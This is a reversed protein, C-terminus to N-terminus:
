DTHVSSRSMQNRVSKMASMLVDDAFFGISKSARQASRLLPSQAVTKVFKNEHWAEIQVLVGTDNEALWFTCGIVRFCHQLV